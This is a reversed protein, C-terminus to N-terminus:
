EKLEILIEFSKEGNSDSREKWYYVKHIVEHLLKNTKVLDTTDMSLIQEIKRKTQKKRDVEAKVSAGEMNRLEQTVLLQKVRIAKIESIAEYDSYIGMRHGNQVCKKQEELQAFRNDLVQQKSEVSDIFRNAGSLVVEIEEDIKELQIRLQQFLADEIRSAKVGNNSCRVATESKTKQSKSAYCNLVYLEREAKNLTNRASRKNYKMCFSLTQGCKPCVLLGSLAYVGRHLTQPVKRNQERIVQAKNFTNEDIIAAHADIVHIPEVGELEYHVIGRYAVNGLILSIARITFPRDEKKGQKRTMQGILTLQECIEAQNMGKNVYMDFISKVVNSEKTNPVLKKTTSDKNYGYPAIGFWVGTKIAQIRGRRLKRKTMLLFHNDMESQIGSLFLDDDNLFNYAKNLTFLMLGEARMFRVFIGFDTRDRTLRDQDTVLVGDYINCKLERLMRQLEPRNWDESSGEESFVEYDMNNAAAYNTLLETQKEIEIAAADKLRSKRVYIAVLKKPTETKM